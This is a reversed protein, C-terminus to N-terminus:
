LSSRKTRNTLNAFTGNGCGPPPPHHPDAQLSSGIVMLAMGFYIFLGGVDMISTVAPGAVVAPRVGCKQFMFVLVTGVVDALNLVVIMTFGVILGVKHDGFTILEAVGSALLTLIVHLCFGVRIQKRLSPLFDRLGLDRSALAEVILTAAQAGTNGAMGMVLPVFYALAIYNELFVEFGKLVVSSGTQLALLGLLPLLRARWLGFLSIKSFSTHSDQGGPSILNGACLWCQHVLLIGCLVGDSDVVPAQHMMAFQADRLCDRVEAIDDNVNFQKFVSTMVDSVKKTGESDLLLEKLLTIYGVQGRLVRNGDVVYIMGQENSIRSNRTLSEISRRVTFDVEIMASQCLTGMKRGVANEPYLFIERIASVENEELHPLLKTVAGVSLLTLVSMRQAPDLKAFAGALQRAPLRVALASVESPHLSLFVSPVPHQILEFVSMRELSSMEQFQQVAISESGHQILTEILKAASAFDDKTLFDNFSEKLRIHASKFAHVASPVDEESFGLKVDEAGVATPFEVNDEGAGPHPM